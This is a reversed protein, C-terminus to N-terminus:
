KVQPLNFSCQRKALFEVSFCYKLVLLLFSSYFMVSFTLAQLYTFHICTVPSRILHLLSVRSTYFWHISVGLINNPYVIYVACLASLLFIHLFNQHSFM